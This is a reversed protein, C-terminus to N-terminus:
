RRAAGATRRSNARVGHGRYFEHENVFLVRRVRQAPIRADTPRRVHANTRMNRFDTKETVTVTVTLVAVGAHLEVAPVRGTLDPM